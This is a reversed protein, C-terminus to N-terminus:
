MSKYFAKSYTDLYDSQTRAKECEYADIIYEIIEEELNLAERFDSPIDILSEKGSVKVVFWANYELEEEERDFSLVEWKIQIERATRSM